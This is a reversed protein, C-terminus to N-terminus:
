VLNTHTNTHGYTYPSNVFFHSLRWQNGYERKKTKERGFAQITSLSPYPRLCQCVVIRVRTLICVCVCQHALHSSVFIAETLFLRWYQSCMHQMNLMVNLEKHWHRACHSICVYEISISILILYKFNMLIDKLGEM